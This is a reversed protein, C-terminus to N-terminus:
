GRTGAGREEVRLHVGGAPVLDLTAKPRVRRGSPILRLRTLVSVIVLKMELLALDRGICLHPGGGFPFYRYDNVGARDTREPRFAHPSTWLDPHRHTVFQSFVVPTGAPVPTGDLVDDVIAERVGGWAPPFLRLTEDVVADLYPMTLLDDFTPQRGGLSRMEAVLKEEVEPHSSILYLAFATGSAVTHQGAHLMTLIEDRIEVDTLGHREHVLELLLNTRPAGAEADTRAQAIATRLPRELRVLHRRFRRRPLATLWSPVEYMRFSNASVHELAKDLAHVTAAEDDDELGFMSYAVVRYTFLELDPCINFAKGGARRQWLAVLDTVLRAANDLFRRQYEGQFYPNMIRRHRSWTDRESTLLGDGLFDTFPSNFRGRGYARHNGQHIRRVAEPRALFLWPRRRFDYLRVVDGYREHIEAYLLAPNRPFRLLIRWM